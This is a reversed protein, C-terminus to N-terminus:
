KSNNRKKLREALLLFASAAWTYAPDCLFDGTVADYNEAFGSKGCLRCFRESVTDALEDFGSRALGTVAIFTSPGWIPGQWYGNSKYKPSDVKETALGWETLHGEIGKRLSERIDEPLREGLIISLWPVLSESEVPKGTNLLRAIFHDECWLERM